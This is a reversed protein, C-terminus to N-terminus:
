FRRGCIEEAMACDDTKRSHKAIIERLKEQEETTLRVIYRKM